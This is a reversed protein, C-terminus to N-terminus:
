ISMLFKDLEIANKLTFLYKCDSTIDVAVFNQNNGTKYLATKQQKCLFEVVFIQLLHNIDLSGANSFKCAKLNSYLM